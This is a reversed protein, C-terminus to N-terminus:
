QAVAVETQALALGDSTATVRISGSVGRKSRVVLLALGNFAKRHDAQFPEVTAPNGNDVAAIKGPGNVQFRVLNDALPCLVGNDDLVRVTIFSLDEGDGHITRRDPLLELRAPAGATRVEDVAVQKGDKYGVLKLSGPEYPVNWILRYKSAFTGDKCEAATVPESFRKKRGLSKGNVFLEVEDCNTYAMVPIQKGEMGAWNWHPLVHVMPDTPGAARTSTTAIRRSAPWTWSASTRAARRALREPSKGLFYPTPEGLYDFGTWVFEGLVQPLKDQADFEVDPLTAWPPVIVDYSTLQLSPHKQYKEIPLHYVGRSSVSSATEAGLIM